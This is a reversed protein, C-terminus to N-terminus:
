LKEFREDRTYNEVISNTIEAWYSLDYIQQIFSDYGETDLKLQICILLEVLMDVADEGIIEVIPQFVLNGNEIQLRDLLTQYIQLLYNYSEEKETQIYDKYFFFAAKLWNKTQPVSSFYFVGKDFDCLSDISDKGNPIKIKKNKETIYIIGGLSVAFLADIFIGEESKNQIIPVQANQGVLYQEFLRKVCPIACSGGILLIRNIDSWQKGASHILAQCEQFTKELLPSILDEFESRTIDFTHGKLIPIPYSVSDNESLTEKIDRCMKSLADVQLMRLNDDDSYEITKSSNFHKYLAADFYKGGCEIGSRHGLIKYGESCHQILAPDFTGGGLDYVLTISGQQQEQISNYYIAAAESERLFEIREFGAIQAAERMIDVRPDVDSYSTPITIVSANISEGGIAYEASRRITKLIEVIIDKYTTNLYAIKNEHIDLKFNKIFREPDQCRWPLADNCVRITGNKDIYAVTPFGYMDYLGGLPRVKVPKDNVIISASSYSTGFDISVWNM